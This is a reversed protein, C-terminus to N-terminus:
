IRSDRVGRGVHSIVAARRLFNWLLHNREKYLFIAIEFAIM